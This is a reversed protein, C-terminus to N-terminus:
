YIPDITAALPTGEARAASCGALAIAALYLQWSAQPPRPAVLPTAKKPSMEPSTAPKKRRGKKM